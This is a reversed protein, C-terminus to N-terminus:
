VIYDGMDIIFDEYIARYGGKERGAETAAPYIFYKWFSHCLVSVKKSSEIRGM